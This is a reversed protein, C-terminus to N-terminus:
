SVGTLSVAWSSLRVWRSHGHMKWSLIAGKRSGSDFSCLWWLCCQFMLLDGVSGWGLLLLFIITHSNSVRFLLWPWRGEERLGLDDWCGRSGLASGHIWSHIRVKVLKKNAKKNQKTKACPRVICGLQGKFWSGGAEAELISPKCTCVVM